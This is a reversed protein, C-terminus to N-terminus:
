IEFVGFANEVGAGVEDGVAHAVGVDARFDDRKELRSVDTEARRQHTFDRGVDVFRRRRKKRVRQEYLVGVRLLDILALIRRKLFLRAGVLARLAVFLLQRDGAAVD